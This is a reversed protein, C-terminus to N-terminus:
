NKQAQPKGQPQGSQEQSGGKALQEAQRLEDGEDGEVAKKAEDAAKAVHGERVYRETAQNYERAATRNGEGENPQGSSPQNPQQQNPQQQQSGQTQQQSGQTQQKM